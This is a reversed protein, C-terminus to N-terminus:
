PHFIKEDFSHPLFIIGVDQGFHNRVHKEMFPAFIIHAMNKPLVSRYLCVYCWKFYAIGKRMGRVHSLFHSLTCSVPIEDEETVSQPSPALFGVDHHSIYLKV